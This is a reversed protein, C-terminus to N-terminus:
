DILLSYDVTTQYHYFWSDCQGFKHGNWTQFHSCSSKRDLNWDHESFCQCNMGFDFFVEPCVTLNDRVVDIVNRCGKFNAKASPLQQFKQFSFDANERIHTLLNNGLHFQRLLMWTLKQIFYKLFYFYRWEQIRESCVKGKQM